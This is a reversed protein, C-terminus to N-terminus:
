PNKRPTGCYITKNDVYNKGSTPFKMSRNSLTCFKVIKLCPFHQIEIITQLLPMINECHNCLLFNEPIDSPINSINILSWILPTRFLFIHEFNSFNYKEVMFFEHSVNKCFGESMGYLKDYCKKVAKIRLLQTRANGPWGTKQRFITAMKSKLPTQSVLSDCFEMNKWNVKKIGEMMYFILLRCGNNIKKM